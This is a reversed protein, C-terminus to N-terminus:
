IRSRFNAIKYLSLNPCDTVVIGVTPKLTSVTEYLFTLNLTQTPIVTNKARGKQVDGILHM